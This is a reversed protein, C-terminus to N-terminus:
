LKVKRKFENEDSVLLNDLYEEDALTRTFSALQKKVENVENKKLLIVILLQIDTTKLDWFLIPEALRIFVIKSTEVFESEIHPLLVHESIQMSGVAEREKLQKMIEYQVSSDAPCIEKSIFHYVEEKNQLPSNFFVQRYLNTDM